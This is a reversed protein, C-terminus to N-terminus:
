EAQDPCVAPAPQVDPCDANVTRFVLGSGWVLWVVVVVAVVLFAIGGLQLARM